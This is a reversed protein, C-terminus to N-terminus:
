KSLGRPGGLLSRPFEPNLSRRIYRTTEMNKEMIGIYGWYVATTKMEKGNDWVRYVRLGMTTTVM